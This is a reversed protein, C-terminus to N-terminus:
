NNCIRSAVALAESRPSYHGIRYRKDGILESVMFIDDGWDHVVVRSGTPCENYIYSNAGIPTTNPRHLALYALLVCSLMAVVALARLDARRLSPRPSTIVWEPDHLM